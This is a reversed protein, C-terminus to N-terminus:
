ACACVRVGHILVPASPRGARINPISERRIRAISREGRVDCRLATACACRLQKPRGILGRASNMQREGRARQCKIAGPSRRSEMSSGDIGEMAQHREDSPFRSM